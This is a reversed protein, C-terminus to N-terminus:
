PRRTIVDRLSVMGVPAGNEVVPLHRIGHRMMLERAEDMPTEPSAAVVDTTMLAEVRQFYTEPTASSIWGLVDRESIVGAMRGDGDVVVLCGVRHDHMVRAAETVRDVRSVTIVKSTRKQGCTATM